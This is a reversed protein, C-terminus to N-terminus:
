LSFKKDHYKFMYCKNTIRQKYIRDKDVYKYFAQYSVNYKTKIDSIKNITEIFTIIGNDVKYIDVKKSKAFGVKIYRNNYINNYLSTCWELNDVNNNHKNEDKHNVYKYVTPNDNNIFNEAVLRYVYYTKRNGKNDALSVQLYGKCDKQNLIFEQLHKWKYKNSEKRVLHKVRGKNSIEYLGLYGNIPKWIENFILM